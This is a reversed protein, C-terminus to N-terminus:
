HGDNHKPKELKKIFLFIQRDHHDKVMYGFRFCCFIKRKIIYFTFQLLFLMINYLSFWLITHFSLSFFINNCLLLTFCSLAIKMYHGKYFYPNNHTPIAKKAYCFLFTQLIYVYKFLTM